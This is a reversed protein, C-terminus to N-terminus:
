AHRRAVRAWALDAALAAWHAHYCWGHQPQRQWRARYRAANALLREMCSVYVAVKAPHSAGSKAVELVTAAREVARAPLPQGLM